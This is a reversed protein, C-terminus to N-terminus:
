YKLGVGKKIFYYAAAFFFVTVVVAYIGNVLINGESVGLYMYRVCSVLPFLPNLLAIHSLVGPLSSVQFFVGALYTVPTLVISLFFNTGEFTKVYLGSIVGISSFTIGVLGLSLFFLIPHAIWAGAFPITAGYTVGGIIIGRCTGGFVFGVLKEFNSLPYSNFDMITNQFKHAVISFSPNQFSSFIVGMVCLGPVLFKLYGVHGITVHRSSLTGGFIALYLLNSILPSILTQVYVKMFRHVERKMLTWMGYPNYFLIM